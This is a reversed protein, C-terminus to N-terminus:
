KVVYRLAESKGGRNVEVDFRESNMLSSISNAIDGMNTFPIGNVSKIVDGRQVGLRKLISDSQIWQVELGGAKESPRLRIRKMEDFPNQVLQNVVESTIQGEQSGPQAAVIQDSNNNRKSSARASPEPKKPEEKPKEALPGYTIYKTLRERGRRFTADRYTVSALKYRGMSKGVLLLTLKGENEFWGGIGPLTGRLIVNDMATDKPEPEPEKQPKPAEAVVPKLPSIHFPNVTLFEDLTRKSKGSESSSQSGTVSVDNMGSSDSIRGLAYSLGADALYGFVIGAILPLIYLWVSYIIGAREDSQHSEKKNDTRSGRDRRIFQFRSIIDQINM